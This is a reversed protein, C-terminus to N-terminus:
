QKLQFTSLIQDFTNYWTQVSGSLTNNELADYLKKQQSIDFIPDAGCSDKNYTFYQPLANYFTKDDLMSAIEVQNTKTYFLLTRQYVSSCVDIVQGIATETKANTDGLKIVRDITVQPTMGISAGFKGAKLDAMDKIVTTKDVYPSSLTGSFIANLNAKWIQIGSVNINNDTKILVDPPYKFSFEGDPDQYTKWSATTDIASSPSPQSAVPKNSTAPSPIPYSLQVLQDNNNKLQLNQYLLWGVMGILLVLAVAGLSLVPNLPVTKSPPQLPASQIAPQPIPQEDSIPQLEPTTQEM